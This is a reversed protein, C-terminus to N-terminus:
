QAMPRTIKYPTINYLGCLRYKGMVKSVILNGEKSTVIGIPGPKWSQIVVVSVIRLLCSQRKPGCHGTPNSHAKRPKQSRPRIYGLQLKNTKNWLKSLPISMILSYELVLILEQMRYQQKKTEIFGTSLVKYEECCREVFRLM